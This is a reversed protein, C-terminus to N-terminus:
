GGSVLRDSMQAVPLWKDHRAYLLHSCSVVLSNPSIIKTKYNDIALKCWIRSGSTPWSRLIRSPINNINSHHTFRDSPFFVFNNGFILCVSAVVTTKAVTKPVTTFLRHFVIEKETNWRLGYEHSSQFSDNERNFTHFHHKNRPIYICQDIVVSILEVYDFVSCSGEFHGNWKQCCSVSHSCRLLFWCFFDTNTTFQVRVYCCRAFFTFNSHKYSMFVIIPQYNKNIRKRSHFQLLFFVSGSGLLDRVAAPIYSIYSSYLYDTTTLSDNWIRRLKLTIWVRTWETLNAERLCIVWCYARQHEDGHKGAM